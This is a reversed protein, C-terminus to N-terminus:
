KSKEFVVYSFYRQLRFLLSLIFSYNKSVDHESYTNVSPYKINKHPSRDTIHEIQANHEIM